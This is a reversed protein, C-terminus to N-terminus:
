GVNFPIGDSNLYVAQDFRLMTVGDRWDNLHPRDGGFAEGLLYSPIDAGAAWALPDGGGFRPNIEIVFLKGTGYQRIVQVNLPGYAKPLKEVVRRALDQLQDDRVTRGKSVEGDRVEIRLRPVAVVCEGDSNVYTSITFEEGEICEQALFNPPVVLGSQTISVYDVGVSRSGEVPKLVVQLNRKSSEGVKQGESWTQPTLFSQDQLWRHTHLKNFAISITELDSICVLCGATRFEDRSEALIRLESDITPILLSISESRCLDLLAQTYKGSDVRPVRHLAKALYGAAALNSADATLVVSCPSVQALAAQLDQILQGRRGASTVLVNVVV